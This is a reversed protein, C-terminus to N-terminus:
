PRVGAAREVDGDNVLTGHRGTAGVTCLDVGYRRALIEARATSYVKRGDPCTTEAGTNIRALKAGCCAM